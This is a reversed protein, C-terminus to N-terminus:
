EPRNEFGSMVVSTGCVLVDLSVTKGQRCNTKQKKTKAKRTPRIAGSAAAQEM